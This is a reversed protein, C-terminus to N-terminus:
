ERREKIMTELKALQDGIKDLADLVDPSPDRLLAEAVKRAGETMPSPFSAELRAIIESNTSRNNSKAAAAIRDRLGPPFRVLAKDVLDSPYTPRAM